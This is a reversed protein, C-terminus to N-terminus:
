ASSSRPPTGTIISPVLLPFTITRFTARRDAGLTQAAEPLARDMTEMALSISVLPLTSFFVAHAIIVNEIKGVHGTSLWFVQMGLASIIPPLMFPLIGLTYLLPTLRIRYTRLVYALPLAILVALAASFAAITFSYRISRLWAPDTFLEGYWSLSFGEPPFQLYRSPNVSGVVIVLLPAVLFAVVVTVIVARFVRMLRGEPDAVRASRRDRRGRAVRADPLDGDRRRVPRERERVGPGRHLGVPDLARAPGLFAAIIYSGLTFVFVLLFGAVIIPRAIPVVVTWFTRWPSAGLTQAAETIEPDLRTLQPYLTLVCYPLAIYCLGLLVAVFSPQYSVAEDILGLWVFLNSVGSARALLVYWTFAVIVESLTLASLVVILLAVHRRRRMRTLFYTFPFAVAICVAGALLCIWISFLARDLFVPQFLRQWNALEFAPVYFAGPIRHYFSTAVMIGFPILFFVLLM